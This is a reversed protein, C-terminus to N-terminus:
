GNQPVKRFFQFWVFTIGVLAGSLSAFDDISNPMQLKMGFIQGGLIVGGLLFAFVAIKSERESLFRNAVWGFLLLNFVVAFWVVAFTFLFGGIV